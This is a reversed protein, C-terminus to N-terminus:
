VLHQVQHQFYQLVELIVCVENKASATISPNGGIGDGTHAADHVGHGEAGRSSTSPTQTSFKSSATGPSTGASVELGLFPGWEAQVKHLM